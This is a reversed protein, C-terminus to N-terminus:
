FFIIRSLHLTDEGQESFLFQGIGEADVREMGSFTGTLELGREELSPSYVAYHLLPIDMTAEVMEQVNFVRDEPLVTHDGCLAYVGQEIFLVRTKLGGMAAAVALSLGGFTWESVYPSYTILINLGPPFTEQGPRSPFTGGSCQALIPHSGAFRELIEKLPRITVAPICSSPRCAGTDQDKVFYGRATACRSCAGFWGEGEDEGTVTALVSVGEGINEFESPHQDLHAAHVGDLYAYLEPQGGLEVIIKLFRLMYVSTRSMYPGECLLFAARDCAKNEGKLYAVLSHWFTLEEGANVDGPTLIGPYKEKITGLLGHLRLEDSDVIVRMGTEYMISHWYEESRSDALSVLAEGTLYLTFPPDPGTTAQGSLPSAADRIWHAREPPVEGCLFFFSRSTM